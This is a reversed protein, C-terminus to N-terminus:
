AHRPSSVAHVHPSLGAPLLRGGAGLRRRTTPFSPLEGCTLAATRLVSPEGQPRDDSFLRPYVLPRSSGSRTHARCITRAGAEVIGTYTPAVHASDVAERQAHLGHQDRKREAEPATSAPPANQLM